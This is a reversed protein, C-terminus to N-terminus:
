DQIDQAIEYFSVMQTRRWEATPRWSAYMNGSHRLWGTSMLLEHEKPNMYVLQIRRPARWYTEIVKTLAARLIDRGFPNYFFVVTINDPVCYSTADGRVVEPCVRCSHMTKVNTRAIACLNRDVDLGIIRKFPFRSAVCIMRGAGCGYDLLSDSENPAVRKIIRNAASYPIARHARNYFSLDQGLRTSITEDDTCVGMHSDQNVAHIHRLRLYVAKIPPFFM